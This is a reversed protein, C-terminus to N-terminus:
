RRTGGNTVLVEIEKSTIRVSRGIRVVGMARSDILRRVTRQSVNLIGAAEVITFLPDLRIACAVAGRKKGLTPRADVVSEGHAGEDELDPIAIGDRARSGVRRRPATPTVAWAPLYSPVVHPASNSVAGAHDERSARSNRSAAGTLTVREQDPAESTPGLPSSPSPRM